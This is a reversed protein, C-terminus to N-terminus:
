KLGSTKISEVMQRRFVLFLALVPIVASVAAALVYNWNAGYQTGFAAIGM